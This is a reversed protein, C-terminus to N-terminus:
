ILTMKAAAVACDFGKNGFKGGSRELSQKINEDTLV